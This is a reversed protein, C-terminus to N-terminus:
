FRSRPSSHQARHDADSDLPERYDFQDCCLISFERYSVGSNNHAEWLLSTAIRVRADKGYRQEWRCVFRYAEKWRGITSTHSGIRVGLFTAAEDVSDNRASRPFKPNTRRAQECLCYAVIRELRDKDDKGFALLCLPFQFYGKVDGM